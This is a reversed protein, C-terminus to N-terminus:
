RRGRAQKLTQSPLEGFAVQYSASFDGLHWFGHALATAKITLGPAGTRLQRRVSWLRRLRGYHFPGTGCITLAATHLTRVSVGISDALKENNLDVVNSGILEDLQDVIRKYRDLPKQDSYQHTEAWFCAENLSALLTEQAALLMEATMITISESGALRLLGRITTQLQALGANSLQLLLPGNGLGPLNQGSLAGELSLIAVLRAEPELVTCNVKGGLLILSQGVSRGNVRVSFVRDMPIVIVLRKSLEYGNIIRPFTRVLSLRCSPLSLTARAVSFEQATIPISEAQAYRESERFEDIDQYRKIELAPSSCLDRFLM